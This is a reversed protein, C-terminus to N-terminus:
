ISSVLNISSLNSLTVPSHTIQLLNYTHRRYEFYDLTTTKTFSTLKGILRYFYFVCLNMIYIGSTCPIDTMFSIDNSPRNNYDTLYQRIKDTVVENLPGHLDNPYHLRRNLSPDSSSGFRDHAISLDLMLLVKM